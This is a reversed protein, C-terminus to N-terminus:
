RGAAYVFVGKRQGFRWPGVMDGSWRASVKEWASRM